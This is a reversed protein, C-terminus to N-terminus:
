FFEIVEEVFDKLEQSSNGEHIAELALIIWKNKQSTGLEMWGELEGVHPLFIGIEKLIEIKQKTEAMLEKSFAEVGKVKLIKWDSAEKNLRNLAGKAGSLTHDGNDLQAVFDRVENKLSDLIAQNEAGVIEKSVRQQFEKLEKILDEDDACLGVLELLSDSNILDLDAISSVPIAAEKFLILVRPITQKNHAHIFILDNNRFDKTAVTQYVARDADAECVVVGTHFVADLIRQSSLLPSMALNKTAQAPMLNFETNDGDRNLRYIDVDQNSALIGALFSSNHTSIIIQGEIETSHEAIWFGLQRAQAPHLFAEPEDLLVIRNKSLLLSLIVGAFSKYGDGQDDLLQYKSIIPFAIRPDDPIEEFEDAIRLVFETMGSYDLKIEQKFSQYFAKNLEPEIEGNGYLAQLLNQPPNEHQNYSGTRRAVSLRSEADLHTIKFKAINGFTFNEDTAQDFQSEFNKPIFTVEENNTLKPGIGRAIKHEFSNPHDSITLDELIEEFASPKPTGIAKIIVPKADQGVVFHDHIDRLTRSKGTNNPGVLVTFKNLVIRKGNVNELYDIKLICEM